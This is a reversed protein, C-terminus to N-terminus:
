LLDSRVKHRYPDLAGLIGILKVAERRTSHVQETKLINILVELLNPYKLYPEVVYSTNTSLQGLTRLAVERKSSSSQDQITDILLPILEPLYPVLDERGVQALEGVATMIQSAVAPSPDSIKQLLVKLIPDVYPKVLRQSAAILRGLL